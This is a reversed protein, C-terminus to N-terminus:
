FEEVWPRIETELTWASREQMHIQWYLEAISKPDILGDPPQESELHTYRESKIQGDIVIHGIHIGKPSLERSMSQALMLLGAKGVSLNFFEAAGRKSATAGTFLITGKGKPIMVKAANKGVLFGGLCNAEWCRRFDEETANLISTKMYAGANYIVINPPGWMETAEKFIRDVDKTCTADATSTIVRNQSKEQPMANLLSKKTRAVGFVCLGESEFKQFLATGLGPGVGFIIANQKDTM